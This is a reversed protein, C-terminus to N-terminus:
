MVSLDNLDSPFFLVWIKKKKNSCKQKAELVFITHCSSCQWNEPLSSM